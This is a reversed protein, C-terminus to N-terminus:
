RSVAMWVVGVWAGIAVGWGTSTPQAGLAAAAPAIVLLGVWRCCERKSM